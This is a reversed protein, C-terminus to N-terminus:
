YRAHQLGLHPLHLPWHSGDWIKCARTSRDPSHSSEATIGAAIQAATRPLFKTALVVDERKQWRGCGPWRIARQLRESLAIATDYFSVRKSVTASLTGAQQKTWRGAISATLPDGFGMCGMCIRSVLLDSKGLRTYQM